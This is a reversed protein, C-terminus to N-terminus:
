ARIPKLGRDRREPAVAPPGDRARATGPARAVHGRALSAPRVPGRVPPPGKRADARAAALPVAAGLLKALAAAQAVRLLLLLGASVAAAPLIAPSSFASAGCALLSVPFPNLLLEGTYLSRSFSWRIKNWRVQRALAAGLSRKITVNRVVVPSVVVFFGAKRVAVGIAQDERSSTRSVGPLGRDSRARRPLDGDVKGRRLPSRLGRRLGNGHRRLHPSAAIGRRFRLLASGRRRLPELRLRCAPRRVLALTGAVDDPSVRVNSDSVLLIEGSAERAAAVLREVKRNVAGAFAPGGVVLRLPAAPFRRM